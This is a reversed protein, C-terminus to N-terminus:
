GGRPADHTKDRAPARYTRLADRLLLAVYHKWILNIGDLKGREYELRREQRSIFHGIAIGLCLALAALSLSFGYDIDM